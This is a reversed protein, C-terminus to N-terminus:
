KNAALGHPLLATQVERFPAPDHLHISKYKPSGYVPHLSHM